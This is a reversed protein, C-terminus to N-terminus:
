LTTWGFKLLLWALKLTFGLGILCVAFVLCTALAMFASEFLKLKM